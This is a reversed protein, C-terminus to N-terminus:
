KLYKAKNANHEDLTRAYHIKGDNDHLYFYYDTEVPNAVAELASISPNCIPGPPLGAFKRTNYPSDLQLDKDTLNKKWWTKEEEDYGLAFQVTADVELKWGERLRKLLIGAVVGREDGDNRTEREILSALTVAEDLSLGQATARQQLDPNFKEEFTARMKQAIEEATSTVKFLYTDPYMYGIKAVDLFDKEEFPYNKSLEAAVEENRWGELIKAWSDLRGSTLKKALNPLELNKPLKFSGAQINGSLCKEAPYSKLLTTPSSLSVGECAFRAYLRFTRADKIFGENELREAIDTM